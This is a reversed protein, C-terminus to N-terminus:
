KLFNAEEAQERAVQARKEGSKGMEAVARAAERLDDENKINYREFMSRTKHGLIKMVVGESVGSRRYSRAATRRFDHLWRKGPIKAATCAKHWISYPFETIPRGNRHFLRRIIIGRERELERTKEDWAKLAALAEAPLYIVRGEGNKTTGPDLTITGADLDLQRRDADLLEDRRPGTWRVMIVFPVLWDNGINRGEAIVRPLAAILREFEDDAFFIGRVNAAKITPFFPLQAVKRNKYGLRLMRRLVALENAITQEAAKEVRRADIYSQMRAHTIARVYDDGFVPELHKWRGALTDLDQAKNRYDAVVDAYLERVHVRSAAAPTVGKGVDGLRENPVAQAETKNKADTPEEIRRHRGVAYRVYFVDGKKRVGGQGRKWRRRARKESM